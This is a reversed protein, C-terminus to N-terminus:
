LSAFSLSPMVGEAQRSPPRPSVIRQVWKSLGSPSINMAAVLLPMQRRVNSSLSADSFRSNGLAVM